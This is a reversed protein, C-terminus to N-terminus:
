VFTSTGAVTWGLSILAISAKCTMTIDVIETDYSLRSLLRGIPTSDFFQMSAVLVRDIALAYLSKAARVGGALGWQSRLFLFVFSVAAICM